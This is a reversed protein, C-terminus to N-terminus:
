AGEEKKALEIAAAFAALVEAHTREPADNWEWISHLPQAHDLGNARCFLGETDNHDIEGSALFIANAACTSGSEGCHEGAGLQRWKEPTSVLERARELIEVTSAM